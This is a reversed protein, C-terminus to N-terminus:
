DKLHGIASQGSSICDCALVTCTHVLVAVADFRSLWCSEPPLPMPLGFFSTSAHALNVHDLSSQLVKPPGYGSQQPAAAVPQMVQEGRKLKEMFDLMVKSEKM